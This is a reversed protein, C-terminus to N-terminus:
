ALGARELAQREAQRMRATAQPDHDDYGLLHLLGHVTYLAIEAGLPLGRAEAERAATEVSVIIEGLLPAEPDTADDLPFALVDTAEDRGLYQRNLEGIAADDVYAISLGADADHQRLVQTCLSRIGDEDVTALDQQNAVDITM